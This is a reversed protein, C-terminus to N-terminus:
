LDFRIMKGNDNKVWNRRMAPLVDKEPPWPKDNMVDLVESVARPCVTLNECGEETILVDDELRVGGSGRFENLREVCLYKAQKPNALALDLLIDIFYCGPEVTLVMGAKLNRSTRLKNLGPRESRRRAITETYGGVDHADLGILHGLGHPMFIAGLDANIMDDIEGVLLGGKKLATLITREALRHMDIWSIGPKIATIVDIQASLVANYILLQDNSFQGNVPFSCTIDSAYCNYEAGMDLLAMDGDILQRDNPRGAHGYHLISPNPGCACICTYSMHRCGGHTYTHHQYLSELQYEMMGVRCSKMVEVHAMSSVWNIYRMLEIEAKTKHVRAEVIAPFLADTNRQKKYKEIGDYHAPLAYNGSDTNRGSLLYLQADNNNEYNDDNDNDNGDLQLAIYEELKEMPLVNDLGYKARILELSSNEGCFIEYDIGYVPVFLTAEGSPLSIAALVGAEPVGFTWHFFSEQRFVPEYDTDYRTTQKGGELLIVGRGSSSGSKGDDDLNELLSRVLRARNLGHLAMPVRYTNLGLSYIPDQCEQCLQEAEMQRKKIDVILPPMRLASALMGSEGGDESISMVFLVRLFLLLRLRIM